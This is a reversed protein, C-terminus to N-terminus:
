PLLNGLGFQSLQDKVGLFKFLLGAYTVTSGAKYFQDAAMLHAGSKCDPLFFPWYLCQIIIGRFLFPMNLLEVLFIESNLLSPRNSELYRITDCM